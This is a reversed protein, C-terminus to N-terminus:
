ANNTNIGKVIEELINLYQEFTKRGKPTVQYTTRPKNEVFAKKSKVLQNTELVKLHVSLNGRTVDLLKVLDSFSVTTESAVLASMIGLRIRDHYTKDIKKTLSIVMIDAIINFM